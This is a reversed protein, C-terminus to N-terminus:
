AFALSDTRATDLPCFCLMAKGLHPTDRITLVDDFFHINTSKGIIIAVINRGGPSLPDMAFLIRDYKISVQDKKSYWPQPETHRASTKIYLTVLPLVKKYRDEDVNDSCLEPLSIFQYDDPFTAGPTPSRFKLQSPKSLVTM